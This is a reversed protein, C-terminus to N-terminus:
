EVKGNWFLGDVGRIQSNNYSHITTHTTDRSSTSIVGDLTGNSCHLSILVSPTPPEFLSSLMMIGAAVAMTTQTITATMMKMKQRLDLLLFVLFSKSSLGMWVREIDMFPRLVRPPMDVPAGTPAGKAPKALKPRPGLLSQSVM